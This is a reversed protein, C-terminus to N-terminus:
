KKAKTNGDQMTSQKFRVIDREPVDIEEGTPLRMARAAFQKHKFTGLGNICIDEGDEYIVEALTNFLTKCILTASSKSIGNREAYIKVFDNTRLM